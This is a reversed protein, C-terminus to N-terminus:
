ESFLETSRPEATQDCGPNVEKRDDAEKWLPTHGGSPYALTDAEGIGADLDDKNVHAAEAICLNKVVRRSTSM